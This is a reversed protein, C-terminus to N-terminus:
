NNEFLSSSTNQNGIIWIYVMYLGYIILWWGGVMSALCMFSALLAEPGQARTVELPGCDFFWQPINPPQITTYLYLLHIIIVHIRIILASILVVYRM